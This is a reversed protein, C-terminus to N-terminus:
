IYIGFKARFTDHLDKNGIVRKYSLTTFYKKNFQYYITTGLSNQGDENLFKTKHYSYTINAYLDKNFFYRSGLYITYRNRLKNIGSRDRIVTYDIGGFYSSNKSKYYGISSLLKIDSM